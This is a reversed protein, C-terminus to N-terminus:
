SRHTWSDRVHINSDPRLLFGLKNQSEFYFGPVHFKPDHVSSSHQLLKSNMKSKSTVSHFKIDECNSEGRTERNEKWAALVEQITQTAGAEQLEKLTRTYVNAAEHRVKLGTRTGSCKGRPVVLTTCLVSM